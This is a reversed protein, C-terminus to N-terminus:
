THHDAFVPKAAETQVGITLDRYRDAGASSEKATSCTIQRLPFFHLTRDRVMQFPQEFM